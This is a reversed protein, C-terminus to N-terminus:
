RGMGYKTAPRITPKLIGLTDRNMECSKLIITDNNIYIIERIANVIKPFKLLSLLINKNIFFFSLLM